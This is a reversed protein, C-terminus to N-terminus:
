VQTPVLAPVAPLGDVLEPLPRVVQVESYELKNLFVPNRNPLEVSLDRALNCYVDWSMPIYTNLYFNTSGVYLVEYFDEGVHFVDGPGIKPFIRENADQSILNLAALVSTGPKLISTARQEELGFKKLEYTQESLDISCPFVYPGVWVKNEDQTERHLEDFGTKQLDLVWYKVISLRYSPIQVAQNVLADYQRLLEYPLEPHQSFKLNCFLPM